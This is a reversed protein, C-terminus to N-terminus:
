SDILIANKAINKQTPRRIYSGKDSSHFVLRTPSGNKGSKRSEFSREEAPRQGPDKCGGAAAAKHNSSRHTVFRCRTEFFLRSQVYESESLDTQRVIKATDGRGGRKDVAAATQVAM